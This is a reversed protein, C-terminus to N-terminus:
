IDVFLRFCVLEDAENKECFEFVPSLMDLPDVLGVLRGHKRSQEDKLVPHSRLPVVAFIDSPHFPRFVDVNESITHTSLVVLLGISRFSPDRFPVYFARLIQETVLCSILRSMVAFSARDRPQLM